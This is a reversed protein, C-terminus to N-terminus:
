LFPSSTSTRIESIITLLVGSLAIIALSPPSSNTATIVPFLVFSYIVDITNFIRSSILHHLFFSLTNSTIDPLTPIATLKSEFFPKSSM